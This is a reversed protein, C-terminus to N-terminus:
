KSLSPPPPPPLARRANGVKLAEPVEGPLAMTDSHPVEYRDMMERIQQEITMAPFFAQEVKSVINGMGEDLEAGLPLKSLKWRPFFTMSTQTLFIIGM